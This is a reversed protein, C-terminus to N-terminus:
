ATGAAAGCCTKSTVVGHAHSEVPNEDACALCHCRRGRRPRRASPRPSRCRGTPGCRRVPTPGRRCRRTPALWDRRATDPGGQRRATSWGGLHGETLRTPGLMRVVAPAAALRRDDGCRVAPGAQRTPRSGSRERGTSSSARASRRTRRQAPATARGATGVPAPGPPLASCHRCPKGSARDPRGNTLEAPIRRGTTGVAPPREDPRDLVAGPRGPQRHAVRARPCGRRRIPRGAAPGCL